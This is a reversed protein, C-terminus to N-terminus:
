YNADGEDEDQAYRRLEEVIGALAQADAGTLRLGLRELSEISALCAYQPPRIALIRQVLQSADIWRREMVAVELASSLAWYDPEEADLRPQLAEKVRPLLQSLEADSAPSNQMFLLAASNFGTYYDNPQADFAERYFTAASRLDDPNGDNKWREKYIRGTIGLSEADGIGGTEGILRRMLSLAREQDGPESRRNLALATLQMAQPDDKVDAPLSSAVRILGTWDSRNRYARLVDLYAAPDAEGSARLAEEAETIAAVSQSGSGDVRTRKLTQKVLDPYVRGRRSSIQLDEPLEVRLGPFFEYLPSGESRRAATRLAQTIRARLADPADLDSVPDYIIRQLFAIYFPPSGAGASLLVTPGRNTAHRVGLEYMVNPNATTVDALLIDSTIIDGLAQTQISTGAGVSRWSRISLGAREIAPAVLENYVRDFDITPGTQADHKRGVPMSVFCTKV